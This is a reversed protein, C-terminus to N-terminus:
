QSCIHVRYDLSYLVHLRILRILSKAFYLVNEKSFPTSLSDLPTSDKLRSTLSRKALSVAVSMKYLLPLVM